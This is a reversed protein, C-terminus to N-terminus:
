TALRQLASLDQDASNLSGKEGPCDGIGVEDCAANKQLFVTGTAIRSDGPDTQAIGGSWDFSLDFIEM